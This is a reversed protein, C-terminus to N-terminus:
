NILGVKILDLYIKNLKKEESDWNYISMVANRGNEGMQKAKNTDNLLSKIAKAIANPDVPNVCIGCDEKEIISKWL